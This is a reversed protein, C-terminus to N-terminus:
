ASSMMRTVNEGAASKEWGGLMRGIEDRAEAILEDCPWGTDANENRLIQLQTSDTAGVRRLNRRAM